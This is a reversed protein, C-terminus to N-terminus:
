KNWTIRFTCFATQPVWSMVRRRELRTKLSSIFKLHPEIRWLDTRDNWMASEPGGGPRVHILASRLWTKMNNICVPSICVLRLPDESFLSVLWSLNFSFSFRQSSSECVPLQQGVRWGSRCTLGLATMTIACHGSSARVVWSIINLLSIYVGGARRTTENHSALQTARDQPWRPRKSCSPTKGYLPQKEGELFM